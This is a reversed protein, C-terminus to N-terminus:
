IFREIELLGKILPNELKKLMVKGMMQKALVSFSESLTPHPHITSVLNNLTLKNAVILAAEGAIANAENTMISVGLIVHSKKDVVYKLQGNDFGEIQSKADISYDYHDVIVEIGRKLAEEESIGAMAINPESFLVWSNKDYDVKFLNHELFLNQALTHAGYQATHAFRPFGEVVDGNAFINSNSTQLSANTRIGGKDYTVDVKELGLTTINPTRGTAILVRESTVKKEQTDQKYHVTFSTDYDINSVSAELILNINPDNQLVTLMKSAFDADVHKLISAKRGILNIKSGLTALIQAFEIAIPGDGIISMSKPLEMTEFFDENTWVKDVGNGEFHPVFATSGTAIVCKKFIIQEKHQDNFDALITDNSVFSAKAKLLDVNELSLLVEKAAGSRRSLIQAKREVIKEWALNYHSNDLTIGFEKLTHMQRIQKATIEMIKSPICGDFLCEGGLEGHIDILAIRKDRNLKAYEIAVPTGAPGGGIVVLDYHKLSIEM